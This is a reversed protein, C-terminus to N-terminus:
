AERAAGIYGDVRDALEQVAGVLAAVMAQLDISLSKEGVVSGSFIDQQRQAIFGVPILPADDAAPFLKGQDDGTGPTLFRFQFLPIRRIVDLCKFTSTAIDQKLREDSPYGVNIDTGGDMRIFCPGTTSYYAIQFGHGAGTGSYYIGVDGFVGHGNFGAYRGNVDYEVNLSGYLTTDGGVWLTSNIGMGGTITGGGIPLYGSLGGAVYSTTAVDGQYTGDVYINVNGNWGFGFRHTGTFSFAIGNGGATIDSLLSLHGGGDLTMLINSPSAWTRNGNQGNWGDYWGARYTEFKSGSGDVTFVWEYNNFSNAYFQTSAFVYTGVLSNNVTVKGSCTGGALPLFTDVYQKTAAGLPASPNQALVLPGTMTAGTRPVAAQAVTLASNATTGVGDVYQRTAADLPANPNSALTLVGTMTGGSLPVFPGAAPTFQDVYAKTVADLPQVPPGALTLDGVMTGGTLPLFPGGVVRPDDFDVKNSWWMSWEPASPVYGPQWNPTREPGVPYAGSM